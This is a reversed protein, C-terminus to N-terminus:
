GREHDALGKKIQSRLDNLILQLYESSALVAKSAEEQEDKQILSVAVGLQGIANALQMLYIVMQSGSLNVLVAEDGESTSNGSM